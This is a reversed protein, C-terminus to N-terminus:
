QFPLLASDLLGNPAVNDTDRHWSNKQFPVLDWTNEKSGLFNVTAEWNQFGLTDSFWFSQKM